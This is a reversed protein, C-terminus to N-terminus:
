PSNHCEIKWHHLTVLYMQERVISLYLKASPYCKDYRVAIVVEETFVHNINSFDLSCKYIYIYQTYM